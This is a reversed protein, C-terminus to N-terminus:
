SKLLTQETFTYYMNAIYMNSLADVFVYTDTDTEKLFISVYYVRQLDSKHINQVKHGYGRNFVTSRNTTNLCFHTYLKRKESFFVLM